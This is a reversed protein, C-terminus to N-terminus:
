ESTLRKVMARVAALQPGSRTLYYGSSYGFWDWCGSSNVRPERKLQPYLVIINNSDAWRDYAKSGVIAKEVAEHSQSCGHFVVHVTCRKSAKGTCTQPIYVYGEDDFSPNWHIVDFLTASPVFEAQSFTQVESSLEQAAPKLPGHIFKLIEKPQDYDDHGSAGCHVIFPTGYADCEKYSDGPFVFAHNAPFSSEYRINKKPVKAEVYFDRTAQVASTTVRKDSKGTFIYVKQRAINEVADISNARALKTATIWSLHGDPTGTMCDQISLPAALMRAINASACGFPGAAVIGVGVVSSSFAVAYQGAMFGGSSLGSVSTRTGDAQLAPLPQATAAASALCTTLAIAGLRLRKSHPWM